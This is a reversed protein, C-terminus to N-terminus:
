SPKLSTIKLYTIGRFYNKLTTLLILLHYARAHINGGRLKPIERWFKQPETEAAHHLLIKQRSNFKARARRKEQCYKRRKSIVRERFIVSKNRKFERNACKIERRALECETTFWPSKYKRATRNNVGGCQKTIGYISFTTTYLLEAFSNVGQNIDYESSVTKDVITNFSNIESSIRDKFTTLKSDDWMLAKTLDKQCNM